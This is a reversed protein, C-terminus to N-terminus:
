KKNAEIEIDLKVDDGVGPLLGKVNFESRKLTTTASFGITQKSIIPNIGSKNFTVHLVVPKTTGHLSLTGTVTATDKGTVEIKNSVFSAQPYKKTEFFLPGKLHKDLEEIGTEMDTLPITASVKSNAPNKEDFDIAGKVFWKGSPSSFDFHKVRWMVYSHASDITYVETAAQVTVSFFFMTVVTLQALSKMMKM